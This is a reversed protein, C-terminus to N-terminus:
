GYVGSARFMPAAARIPSLDPGCNGAIDVLDLLHFHQATPGLGAPSAIHGSRADSSQSTAACRLRSPLGCSPQASRAVLPVEVSVVFSEVSHQAAAHEIGLPQCRCVLGFDDDVLPESLVAVDMLMLGQIHM